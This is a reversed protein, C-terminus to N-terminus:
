RRGHKRREQRISEKEAKMPDYPDEVSLFWLPDDPWEVEKGPLWYLFPDNKAGAGERALRGDAVAKELWQWLATAGPVPVDAAPWDELIEDRSLKCPATELFHRLREWGDRSEVEVFDGLYLYDTGPENLELIARRPTQEIRSFARLRRRRDLDDKPDFHEMELYIDVYALLAGSGRSITGAPGLHKRPHHFLLVGVGLGTLRQLPALMALM